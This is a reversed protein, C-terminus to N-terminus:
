TALVCSRMGRRTLGVSATHLESWVILLETEELPAEAGELLHSADSAAREAENVDGRALAIRAACRQVIVHTLV